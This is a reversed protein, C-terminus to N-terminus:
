VYVGNHQMVYANVKKSKDKKDYLEELHLTQLVVHPFKNYDGIYTDGCEELLDQLTYNDIKGLESINDYQYMPSINEKNEYFVRMLTSRYCEWVRVYWFAYDDAFASKEKLSQRWTAVDNVVVPSFGRAAFAFRLRANNLKVKIRHIDEENYECRRAYKQIASPSTICERIESLTLRSYGKFKPFYRSIVYQPYQLYVNTPVGEVTVKRLYRLDHRDTALMISNLSFARLDMGFHRSYSHKQRFVRTKFIQPLDASSNVYSAVYTAADRAVEVRRPLAHPNDFLWCADRASKFLEVDEYKCWILLHLHPRYYNEGYEFASYFTLPYSVGRRLLYQRLNKIFNQVDTYYPMGVAYAKNKLTHPFKSHRFDVESVDLYTLVHRHFHSDKVFTYDSGKRNRRVKCDRYIPLRQFEKLEGTSDKFYAKLDKALCYPVFNNDYTLLVMLPVFGDKGTARIRSARKNAAEQLCAKCHGCKVLVNRGTYKNRIYKKNTCM